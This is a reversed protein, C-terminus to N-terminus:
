QEVSMGVAVTAGEAAEAKRLAFLSGFFIQGSDKRYRSLSRLPETGVVGTDQDVNVMECRGCKEGFVFDTKELRFSVCDDEWHPGPGGSLLLTPRFRKASVSLDYQENLWTVSEASVVLFSDSSNALTKGVASRALFCEIGFFTQLFSNAAAGGWPRLPGCSSVCAACDEASKEGVNPPFTSSRIDIELTGNLTLTMRELSIVSELLAM